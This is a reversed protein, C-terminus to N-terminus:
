SRQVLQAENRRESESVEESAGMKWYSYAYFQDKTWQYATKFHTRIKKVTSFESAIYSFTSKNEPIAFKIALDALESGKEPNPNIVWQIEFHPPLKWHQIDEASVTEIIAIGEASPPLSEIIASLVPIATADGVLLYWDAKPILETADIGMSVGILDGIEAHIAWYSAPGNDGHAVFDIILEGKEVDIGRHTYTRILPKTKENEFVWQRTDFNFTPFQIEKVGTPPIFLKNNVGITAQSLSRVDERDGQLTIRIFNPTLYQRKKLRFVGSFINKRM